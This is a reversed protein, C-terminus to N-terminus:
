RLDMKQTNQLFVIESTQGIFLHFAILFLEMVRLQKQVCRCSDHHHM